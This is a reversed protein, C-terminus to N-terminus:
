VAGRRSKQFGARRNGYNNGRGRSNNQNGQYQNYGEQHAGRGGGRSGGRRQGYRNNNGRSGGRDRGINYALKNMEGLDKAVSPLNDGFLETTIENKSGCLSRYQEKIQPKLAWRRMMGIEHCTDALVAVSDKLKDFLEEGTPLPTEHHANNFCANTVEILPLMGLVLSEHISQYKVDNMRATKSLTTWLTQNVKIKQLYEINAPRDYNMDDFGDQACGKSLLKDIIDALDSNVPSGIKEEQQFKKRMHGLLKSNDKERPQSPVEGGGNRHAVDDHQKDTIPKTKSMHSTSACPTSSSEGNGGDQKQKKKPPEISLDGLDSVDDDRHSDAYDGYGSHLEPDEWAADLRDQKDKVTKIKREMSGMSKSFEKMVSTLNNLTDHIQKLSEDSKGPVQQQATKSNGTPVNGDANEGGDRPSSAANRAAMNPSRGGGGNEKVLLGPTAKRKEGKRSEDGDQPTQASNGHSPLHRVLKNMSELIPTVKGSKERAPTDAMM